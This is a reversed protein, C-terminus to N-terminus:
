SASSFIYPSIAINCVEFTRVANSFRLATVTVNSKRAYSFVFNAMAGLIGLLMGIEIGVYQIAIFTFVCVVYELTRM